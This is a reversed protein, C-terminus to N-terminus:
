AFADGMRAIRHLIYLNVVLFHHLDARLGVQLRSNSGSLWGVETARRLRNFKPTCVSFFSLRDQSLNTPYALNRSRWLTYPIFVFVLEIWCTDPMRQPSEGSIHFLRTHSGTDAHGTNTVPSQIRCSSERRSCELILAVEAPRQRHDEVEIPVKLLCAGIAVPLAYLPIYSWFALTLSAGAAAAGYFWYIVPPSQSMSPRLFASVLEGVLPM